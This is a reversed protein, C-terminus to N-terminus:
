GGEDRDSRQEGSVKDGYGQDPVFSFGREGGLGTSAEQALHGRRVTEPGDHSVVIVASVRFVYGACELGLVDLDQGVLRFWDLLVACTEPQGAHIIYDASM